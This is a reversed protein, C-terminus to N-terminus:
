TRRRCCTRASRQVDTGWSGDAALREGTTNNRLTISVERLAEDDTASGSFTMPSGPAVTIPQAATPPVM